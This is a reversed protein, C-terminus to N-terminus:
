PLTRKRKGAPVRVARWLARPPAKAGTFGMATFTFGDRTLLYCPRSEGKADKYEVARFNPRNEEDARSVIDNIADLVHDHRKDFMAAVDRSNIMAVGDVVQVAQEATIPPTTEEPDAKGKPTKTNLPSL